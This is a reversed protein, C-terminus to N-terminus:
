HSTVQLVPWGSTEAGRKWRCDCVRGGEALTSTRSFGLGLLSGILHDIHCMYPTFPAAGNAAFLKAIACEHIDMGFDYSSDREVFSFVWDQPHRKLQSAQAGKRLKEQNLSSFYYQRYAWRLPFPFSLMYAEFIDYTLKVIEALSFEQQKLSRYMALSMAAADLNFQWLNKEGIDSIKPALRILEHRTDEIVMAALKSPHRQYMVPLIARVVRQYRKLLRINNGTNM